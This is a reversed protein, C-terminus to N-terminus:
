AAVPDAQTASVIKGEAAVPKIKFWIAYLAPL